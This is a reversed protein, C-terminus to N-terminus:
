VVLDPEMNPDELTGESGVPTTGSLGYSGPATKFKQIGSIAGPNLQAPSTEWPMSNWM